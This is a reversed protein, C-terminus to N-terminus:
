FAAMQIWRCCTALCRRGLSPLACGIASAATSKGTGSPGSFLVATSQNARMQSGFGWNGFLISRAKELSCIDDLTQQITDPVVVSDMGCTPVERDQFSKMRLTGRIQAACGKVIDDHCVMPSEPGDRSIALLLASLVANKIYRCFRHSV